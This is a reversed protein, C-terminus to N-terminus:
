FIKLQLEIIENKLIDSVTEELLNSKFTSNNEFM